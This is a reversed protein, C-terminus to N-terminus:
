PTPTPPTLLTLPLVLLGLFGLFYLPAHVPLTPPSTLLAHRNPILPYLLPPSSSSPLRFHPNLSTTRYPTLPSLILLLIPLFFLLPIQHLITVPLALLTSSPTLLEPHNPTLLCPPSLPAPSLAIDPSSSLFLLLILPLLLFLM